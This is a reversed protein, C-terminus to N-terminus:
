IVRYNSIPMKKNPGTKCNPLLLGFWWDDIMSQLVLRLWCFQPGPAQVIYAELLTLNSTAVSMVKLNKNFNLGITLIPKQYSFPNCTSCKSLPGISSPLINHQKKTLLPHFSNTRKLSRNLYIKFGVVRMWICTFICHIDNPKCITQFALSCSSVTCEQFTCCPIKRNKSTDRKPMPIFIWPCIYIIM